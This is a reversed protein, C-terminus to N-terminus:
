KDLLKVLKSIVKMKLQTKMDGNDEEPTEEEETEAEHYGKYDCHECGEGECYECEEPKDTEEMEGMDPLGSMAKKGKMKPPLMSKGKPKTFLMIAEGAKDEMGHMIVEWVSEGIPM